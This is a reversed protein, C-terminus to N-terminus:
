SEFAQPLMEDHKLGALEGFIKKTWARTHKMQRSAGAKWLHKAPSKRSTARTSKPRFIKRLLEFTCIGACLALLGMSTVEIAVCAPWVPIDLGFLQITAVLGFLGLCAAGMLFLSYYIINSTKGPSEERM